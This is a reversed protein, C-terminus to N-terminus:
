IRDPLSWGRQEHAKALFVLLKMAAHPSLEMNVHRGQNSRMTLCVRPESPLYMGLVEEIDPAQNLDPPRTSDREPNPPVAREPAIQEVRLDSVKPIDTLRSKDMQIRGTVSAIDHWSNLWHFLQQIFELAQWVPDPDSKAIEYAHFIPNRVEKYFTRTREWLDPERQNLGFKPDILGPLANFVLHATGRGPLLFPNKTAELIDDTMVGRSLAESFMASGVASEIWVIADRLLYTLLVEPRGHWTFYHTRIPVPEGRHGRFQARFRKSRFLGLLSNFDRRLNLMPVGSLRIGFMSSELTAM